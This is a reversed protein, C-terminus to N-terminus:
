QLAGAFLAILGMAMGGKLLLAARGAAAHAPDPEARRDSGRPDSAAASPLLNAIDRYVVVLVLGVGVSALVLYAPGYGLFIAPAPIAVLLTAIAVRVARRAAASSVSDIWTPHGFARDGDRDAVDKVTERIWSLLFAFLAPFLLDRPAPGLFGGLLLASATLAAALLNKAVPASDALPRYVLLLAAWLAILGRPASPLAAWAGGASSGSFAAGLGLALLLLAARRATRASVLGRAVPRCPHAIRDRAADEADNWAYGAALVLLGAALARALGPTSGLPAGALRAGLVISAGALLLNFPRILALRAALRM